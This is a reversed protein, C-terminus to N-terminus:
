LRTVYRIPEHLNYYENPDIGNAELEDASKRIRENVEEISEGTVEAIDECTFLEPEGTTTSILMKIGIYAGRVTMGNDLLDIIMARFEERSLDYKSGYNFCLNDLATTMKMAEM